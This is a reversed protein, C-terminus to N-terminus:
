YLKRWKDFEQSDFYNKSMEKDIKMRNTLESVSPFKQEDRIWKFFYTKLTEGYVMENFDFLYTEIVKFQGNVTPNIGINTVGSYIKGNYITKTAYVGNPPFLKENDAKINATPFGITRGLKKGEIVEGMVFYPVTLLTNALDIDKNILCNRVRTSSVREGDYLVSPVYIVKVGKKEGLEKLLEYDGSQKKGFRYNEGVILVKCNLKEFIIEKAFKEPEMSAFEMNFPYEIYCDVDLTEMIHKKEFPSMILAKHAKNNFLFMPHPNFTFVVSKLNEERAFEKTLSILARHGMHMGDFNGITVVTPVNQEINVDTIHEM